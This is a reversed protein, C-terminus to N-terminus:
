LACSGHAECM